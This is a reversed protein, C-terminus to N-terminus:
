MCPRPRVDAAPADLMEKKNTAMRVFELLHDRDCYENGTYRCKYLKYVGLGIEWAIVQAMTIESATLKLNDFEQKSRFVYIL